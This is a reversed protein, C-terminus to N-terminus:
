LLTLYRDVEWATVQRHFENWEARKLRLFEAAIPGLGSRVVEDREFEDLAEALSQPLLRVNRRAMEELGLAYANDRNPEGPDLRRRIGDMGSALYAAFSLYPNFASSVTRDEVHGAEPTRIM